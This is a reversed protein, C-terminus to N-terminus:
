THMEKKFHKGYTNMKVDDVWLSALTSNKRDKIKGFEPAWKTNKTEKKFTMLIAELSVTQNYNSKGESLFDLPQTFLLYIM